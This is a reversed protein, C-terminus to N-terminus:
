SEKIKEFWEQLDAVRSELKSRPGRIDLAYISEFFGGFDEIYCELNEDRCYLRIKAIVSRRITAGLTLSFQYSAYQSLELQKEVAKFLKRDKDFGKLVKLHIQYNQVIISSDGLLKRKPGEINLRFIDSNKSNNPARFNEAFEEIWIDHNPGLNIEEDLKWEYPFTKLQMPAKLEWSPSIKSDNM